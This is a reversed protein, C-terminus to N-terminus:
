KLNKHWKVGFMLNRGLAPFGLSEEYTRNLLNSAKAILWVGSKWQLQASSDFTTYFPNTFQGASLGWNPEADLMRGRWVAGAEIIARKNQWVAVYSGAHRPRRLLQQGLHFYSQVQSTGDLGLVATDLYTYAGKFSFGKALQIQVSEEIGRTRSNALNDSQWRSLDAQDHSLTIIQDHFRNYFWITEFTM